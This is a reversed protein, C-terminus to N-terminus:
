TKKNEKEKELDSKDDGIKNLIKYVTSQAIRESKDSDKKYVTFNEKIHPEIVWLMYENFNSSNLFYDPLRSLARNIVEDRRRILEKLRKDQM